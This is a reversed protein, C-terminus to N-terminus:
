TERELDCKTGSHTNLFDQFAMIDEPTGTPYGAKDVTLGWLKKLGRQCEPKAFDAAWDRCPQPKEAHVTCLFEKDGGYLFPCGGNLQQVLCSDVGPWRPDAYRARFEEPSLGLHKALREIDHPYLLVQYRKCCEGCLFCPTDLTQNSM